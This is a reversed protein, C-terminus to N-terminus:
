NEIDHRTVGASLTMPATRASKWPPAAFSFLGNNRRLVVPDSPTTATQVNSAGGCSHDFLVAPISRGPVFVPSGRDKLPGGPESKSDTPALVSFREVAGLRRLLSGRVRCCVGCGHRPMRIRGQRPPCITARINIEGLCRPAGPCRAQSRQGELLRRATLIFPMPQM